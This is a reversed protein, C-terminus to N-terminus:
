SGGPINEEASAFALDIYINDVAQVDTLSDWVQGAAVSVARMGAVYYTAKEQATLTNPDNVRQVSRWVPDLAARARCAAEAHDATPDAGYVIMVAQQQPLNLAM